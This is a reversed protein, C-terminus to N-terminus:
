CGPQYHDVPRFSRASWGRYRLWVEAPERRAECSAILTVNGTFPNSDNQYVIKLTQDAACGALGNSLDIIVNKVSPNNNPIEITTASGTECVTIEDNAVITITEEDTEILDLADSIAGPDTGDLALNYENKNGYVKAREIVKKSLVKYDTSWDAGVHDLVAGSLPHLKTTNEGDYNTSLSIAIATEKTWTPLPIYLVGKKNDKPTLATTPPIYVYVAGDEDPDIAYPSGAHTDEMTAEIGNVEIRNNTAIRTTFDGNIVLTKAPDGAERMQIKVGTAYTPIGALQLRLVATMYKMNTHLAEGNEVEGVEGFRPLEDLYYPDLDDGSQYNPADYAAGYTVFEPLTMTVDTVSNHNNGMTWTGRKVNKLPFLAWKPTGINSKMHQRKFVGTTAGKDTKWSFAYLDYAGFDQGYVKLQDETETWRHKKMTRDTYSRTFADGYESAEEFEVLMEGEKLQSADFGKEGLLEDNSCSALTLLGLAMPIFKVFNKM